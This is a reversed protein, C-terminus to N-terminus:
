YLNVWVYRTRKVNDNSLVVRALYSDGAASRPTYVSVFRSTKEGGDLDFGSSSEYIDLEPIFVTVHLDDQGAKGTNLANVHMELEGDPYYMHRVNGILSLGFLFLVAFAFGTKM